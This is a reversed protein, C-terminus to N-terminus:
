NQNLEAELSKRLEALRIPFLQKGKETKIRQPLKEEFLSCINLWDSKVYKERVHDPSTKSLNDADVLIMEDEQNAEYTETAKILRLVKNFEDDSLLLSALASKALTETQKDAQPQIKLLEERSLKENNPVLGSWGIDHIYGAVVLLDLDDRDGGLEKIWSVVRKAHEWDGPRCKSIYTEFHSSLNEIDKM